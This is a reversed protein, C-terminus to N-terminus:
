ASREIMWASVPYADHQTGESWEHEELFSRMDAPNMVKEDASLVLTFTPHFHDRALDLARNSPLLCLSCTLVCVCVCMWGDMWADMWAYCVDLCRCMCVHSAGSM